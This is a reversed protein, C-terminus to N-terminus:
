YVQTNQKRYAQHKLVSAVLLDCVRIFDHYQFHFCFIFSFLHFHFFLRFKTTENYPRCIHDSLALGVNENVEDQFYFGESGELVCSFSLFFLFFSIFSFSFFSLSFLFGILEYVFTGGLSETYVEYPQCAIANIFSIPYVSYLKRQPKLARKEVLVCFLFFFSFILCTLYQDSSCASASIM